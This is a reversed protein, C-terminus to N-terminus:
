SPDMVGPPLLRSLAAEAVMMGFAATVTPLSGLVMRRRDSGGVAEAKEDKEADIYEFRVKEPSFVAEIGRGVGRKRLGSRVERALPCGFTDMLDARRILGISRRLAAGMSSVTPIGREYAAQLLAIKSDLTDICDLLIDTDDLLQSANDESIYADVAIVRCKPNIDRVREAAVEVKKRGVTSHLAIIQRNINSESVSDSDIIRITGIGCRAMAELAHGGVAGIGAITVRKAMLAEVNEEGILRSLRLFQDDLM